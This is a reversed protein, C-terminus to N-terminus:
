NQVILWDFTNQNYSISYGSDKFIEEVVDTKGSFYEMLLPIIKNRIIKEIDPNNMLYAHGILYDASKKRDYIANNIKKLFEQHPEIRSYDPFCGIFDFRRRLAIDILAISKDATNMTGLVYLNPPVGFDKEGNPLMVRLENTDGIRKDDELLTILEGFVKSINARNIEDIILVFKKREEIAGSTNEKRMTRIMEALPNYYPGLGTTFEKRGEVIDELTQISLTHHSAGNPKSFHISYEGVDTITFYIGSAMKIKVPQNKETLPKVIESFVDQFSREKVKQESSAVYNERARKAIEYFIGKSQKFRLEESEIDPRIGTIFDEYSYNQHFTVFEIQGAKRLKDYEAKSGKERSAAEGTVIEVAIDITRFTKGTGPPGYLITNLSYKDTKNAKGGNTGSYLRGNLRHDLKQIYSKFDKESIREAIFSKNKRKEALIAKDVIPFIVELDMKIDQFMSKLDPYSDKRSPSRYKEYDSDKNSEYCLGLSEQISSKIKKVVNLASRNQDNHPNRTQLFEFYYKFNGDKSNLFFVDITDQALGRFGCPMTWFTVGFYGSKPTGIFLNNEAGKTTKRRVSFTFSNDKQYQNNLINFVEKQYDPYSLM